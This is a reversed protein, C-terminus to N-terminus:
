FPLIHGQRLYAHFDYAKSGQTRTEGTSNICTHKFIDCWTGPPYYFDTQNKEVANALVSVKLSSGIMVNNEPDNYSGMDDPFEFFMPKYVPGGGQKSIQFMQTYYYRILCYKVRM